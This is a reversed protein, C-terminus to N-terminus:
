RRRGLVKMEVLDHVPPRASSQGIAWRAFEPTIDLAKLQVLDEVALHSYGVRDFGTIFEPTINLAKLQVLEDAPVSAYGIRAFGGIWEPTVGLAKFEILTQTERPRYGAQAMERIYRADVGLAALGMLDDISPAPYGAAAIGEVLDRRANVAMLGFAQERTPRGIGRSALLQMFGDDAAFSCNGAAYASGGNGTCDLRGAERVIAFRLARTGTGHFGSVDLGILESPKFGTSWSNGDHDRSEDRFSVKIQAPDGREPELIFHIWDPQAAICASSVTLTACCLAFLFLIYRNM